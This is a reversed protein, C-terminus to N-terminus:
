TCDNHPGYQIFLRGSTLSLRDPIPMGRLAPSVHLRFCFKTRYPKWRCFGDRYEIIGYVWFQGNGMWAENVVQPEDIMPLPVTQILDPGLTAVPIPVEPVSDPAPDRPQSKSWTARGKMRLAPSRGSNKIEVRLEVPQRLPMEVEPLITIRGTPVVWPRQQLRLTRRMVGRQAIMALVQLLGVFVLAGTFYMLWRNTAVEGDEKSTPQESVGDAEPPHHLEITAPPQEPPQQDASRGETRAAAGQPPEDTPQAIGPRPLLSSALLLGFVLASRVM